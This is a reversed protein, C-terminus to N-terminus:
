ETTGENLRRAVIRYVEAHFAMGVHTCDVADNMAPDESACSEWHAVGDNPSYVAFQPVDRSEPDLMNEVFPCLCHGTACSPRLNRGVLSGKTQKIQEWLGVVAPHAKVLDRFPSGLTIVRDIHEPIRQVLSRALMGGLSHGVIRVRAGTEAHITQVRSALRKATENPCDVNFSIRSFHPRYGIRRLWRHMDIMMADNSLFGPILLVPEGHGHAVTLGYYAPHFRLQLWELPWFTERWIPTEVHEVSADFEFPDGLGATPQLNRPLEIADAM